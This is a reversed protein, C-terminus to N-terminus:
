IRSLAAEATRRGERYSGPRTILASEPPDRVRMLSTICKQLAEQPPLWAEISKRKNNNNNGGLFGFPNPAGAIPNDMKIPNDLKIPLDLKIGGMSKGLDGFPDGFGGGQSEKAQGFGFM